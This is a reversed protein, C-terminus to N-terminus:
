NEGGPNPQEEGQKDPHDLEDQLEQYHMKLSDEQKRTPTFRACNLCRGKHFILTDIPAGDTYYILDGEKMDNHYIARAAMKGDPEYLYLTDELKGHVYTGEEKIGGEDFYQQFPGEELNNKWNKIELVNGDYAYFIVSKGEQKGNKFLDKRVMRQLNDYFKWISDKKEMVYKGEANLAGSPYFFHAYDSLGDDTYARIAALTDAKDYYNKFVGYPKDDSFHGRYRLNGDPYKKEWLGQKRGQDDTRNRPTGTDAYIYVANISDKWFVPITDHPKVQAYIDKVALLLMALIILARVKM